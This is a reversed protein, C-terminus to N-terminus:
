ARHLDAPRAAGPCRNTSTTRFGSSRQIRSVRPVTVTAVPMSSATTSAVGHARLSATATTAAAARNSPTAPRATCPPSTPLTRWPSPRVPSSSRVSPSCPLLGHRLANLRESAEDQGTHALHLSVMTTELQTHGVYCQILRPHVGAELLHTAYAHRLTHIAVGMTTIGARQKATRFAGQVSTRRMPSTATPSHHHDRGTAPLLWSQHRHTKWYTRLLTLTEAPLIPDGRDACGAAGLLLAALAFEGGVLVRLTRRGRPSATTGSAVNSMASRLDDRLAHVAPAWGFLVATAVTVLLAFAALRPDLGFVAWRPMEDPIARVLTRLAWYGGVLGLAGGLAALLLNEVLLQGLLRWGSAGVAVRIAMERRRALARALMLSAVNACAVLLLLGVAGALASTAARFDKVYEDRLPHAFPSVIKEKDRTDWIAQQVRLPDAQAQEVTVGPKMRGMGEGGYSEGDQSPDGARPVWLRVGGPFDAEPPMVGVITRAVGDLRLTKGVVDQAGGFREQWLGHGIVLVPPAKPRDEDADFFRGLIPQVGLVKPFDYTV